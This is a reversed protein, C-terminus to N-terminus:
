NRLISRLRLFTAEGEFHTLFYNETRKLIGVLKMSYSVHHKPHFNSHRWLCKSYKSYLCKSNSCSYHITKSEFSFIISMYLYSNRFLSVEPTLQLSVAETITAASSYLTEEKKSNETADCFGCTRRCPVMWIGRKSINWFTLCLKGGQMHTIVKLNISVKLHVKMCYQRLIKNVHDPFKRSLNVSSDWSLGLDSDKRLFPKDNLKESLDRRKVLNWTDVAKPFNWCNTM